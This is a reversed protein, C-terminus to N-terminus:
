KGSLTDGFWAVILELFRARARENDLVHGIDPIVEHRCNRCAALYAEVIGHPILEDHESEVLLSPGEYRALYRLAAATELSEISSRRPGGPLELEADAYLAPARLLLSGPTRSATLLAGLHGGYSAGCVGIRTPDVGPEQALRDFAERCDELHDRVSLAARSGGSEGHGSLDFTLCTAGLRESATEAREAYGSQTSDSGHVFLLGIGSPADSLPSFLHGALERSGSVFVVSENL